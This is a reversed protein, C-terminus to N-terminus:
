GGIKQYIHLRASRSRPNEELEKNSPFLPHTVKKMAFPRRGHRYDDYQTNLLEKVISYELSHFTIIVLYAENKLFDPALSLFKKLHDFENNVAVRLAQFTRTAPHKDHKQRPYCSYVCSALETTTSLKGEKRWELIKKAIRRSFREEGYQYIIDALEKENVSDILNAVSLTDEQNMRMDLPGNHLFSFGREPNDLQASCIGLDALIGDFKIDKAKSWIESYNCCFANIGNFREKASNIATPDKDCVYLHQPTNLNKLIEESHGGRGFTADLYIGDKKLHLNDISEKLLVPIHM